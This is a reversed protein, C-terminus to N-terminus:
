LSRSGSGISKAIREAVLKQEATMETPVTIRTM